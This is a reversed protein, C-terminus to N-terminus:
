YGGGTATTVNTGSTAWGDVTETGDANITANFEITALRTWVISTGVQTHCPICAENAGALNLAATAASANLEYHAENTQALEDGVNAHCLICEVTTASHVTEIVGLTANWYTSNTVHCYRCADKGTALAEHATGAGLESGELHCKLCDAEAGTTFTHQGAFMALASPMVFLGISRVAIGLVVMKKM